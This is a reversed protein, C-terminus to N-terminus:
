FEEYNINEEETTLEAHYEGDLLGRILWGLEYGEIRLRYPVNDNIEYLRLEDPNCKCSCMCPNTQYELTYVQEGSETDFINYKTIPNM